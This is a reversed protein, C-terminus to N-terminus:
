DFQWLTHIDLLRQKGFIRQTISLPQPFLQNDIRKLVLSSRIRKPLLPYSQITLHTPHFIIHTNGQLQCHIIRILCM